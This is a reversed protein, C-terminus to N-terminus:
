DFQNLNEYMEDVQDFNTDLGDSPEEGGDDERDLNMGSARLRDLLPYDANLLREEKRLKALTFAQDTVTGNMGNRAM